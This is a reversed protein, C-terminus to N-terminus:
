REHDKLIGVVAMDWPLEPQDALSDKVAQDLAEPIPMEAAKAKLEDRHTNLLEKALQRERFRTLHERLTAEDPIYKTVGHQRLKRELFDLFRRGSLMNLESRRTRLFEIEEPTAGHRALTMAQKAWTRKQKDPDKKLPIPESQLGEAQIDELRLGLDVIPIRNKFRYRRNSKGPTGLTSFGSIDFDRLVFIKQVGHEYLTDLLQRLATVSLGKTSAILLDYKEQIQGAALLPGFGEKEVFLIYKYRNRPGITPFLGLPPLDIVEKRPAESGSSSNIEELYGRV